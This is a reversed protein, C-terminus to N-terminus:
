GMHLYAHLGWRPLSPIGSPLEAPTSLCYNLRSGEANSCHCRPFIESYSQHAKGNKCRTIVRPNNMCSELSSVPMLIWVWFLVYDYIIKLSGLELFLVFWSKNSLYISLYNSRTIETTSIINLRRACHQEYVKQEKIFYSCTSYM